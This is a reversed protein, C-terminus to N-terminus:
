IHVDGRRTHPTHGARQVSQRRQPRGVGFKASVAHHMAAACGITRAAKAGGHLECVDNTLVAPRESAGLGESGILVRHQAGDLAAAGGHQAPVQVHAKRAAAGLRGVVRAAVPMAGLALRQRLRSPDRAPERADQGDVVKM